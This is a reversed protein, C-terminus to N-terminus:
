NPIVVMDKTGNINHISGINDLICIDFPIKGIHNQVVLNQFRQNFKHALVLTQKGIQVVQDLAYVAKVSFGFFGLAEFVGVLHSPTKSPKNPHDLTNAVFVKRGLVAMWM